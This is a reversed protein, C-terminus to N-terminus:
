TSASDYTGDGLVNKWWEFIEMFSNSICDVDITFKSQAQSADGQAERIGLVGHYPGNTQHFIPQGNDRWSLIYTPGDVKWLTFWISGIFHLDIPGDARLTLIYSSGNVRWSLIYTLSEIRLSLTYASRHLDYLGKENVNQGLIITWNSYVKELLLLLFLNGGVGRGGVTPYNSFGLAL